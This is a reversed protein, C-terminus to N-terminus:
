LTNIDFTDVGDVVFTVNLNNTYQQNVRYDILANETFVKWKLTDVKAQQNSFTEIFNNEKILAYDACCLPIDQDRYILWQNYHISNPTYPTAYRVGSPVKSIALISYHFNKFLSRTSLNPVSMNVSGKNNPLITYANFSRGSWASISLGTYSQPPGAIFIKPVGTIDESLLLHGVKNFGLPASPLNAASVVGLTTVEAVVYIAYVVAYADEFFEEMSTMVEKRKAQSFEIVNEKSNKLLVNKDLGSTITNPRTIAFCSTGDYFNLTNIDNTDTSYKLNYNAIIEDSNTCFASQSYGSANFLGHSNFPTQDSINPLKYTTLDYQYDWREFHLVPQGSTNLIIKAKANFAQELSRILDGPNGDYYGYASGGNSLNYDDDYETLHKINGLTLINMTFSVNSEWASKSPMIMTDYYESLPDNLITSEFQLGFYDCAKQMLTRAFMGYKQLVPSILCNIAAETLSILILTLAIAYILWLSFFLVNVAILGVAPYAAVAAILSEVANEVADIVEEIIQYIDWLVLILTMISELSPIDNRQYAIPAYDGTGNLLNGPKIYGPQGPISTLYSYSISDMLQSVMDMRKDRIKVQVIDCSFKTDVDTLDIIGDFVVENSNCVTILLPIGEFIGVGGNLGQALWDNMIFANAGMWILKTANLVADPSLNEYSLELEMAQWNDPQPILVLSLPNPYGISFNFAQM